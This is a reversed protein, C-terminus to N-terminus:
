CHAGPRASRTAINHARTAELDWRAAIKPYREEVFHQKTQHATTLVVWTDWLTDDLDFTVLRPRKGGWAEVARRMPEGGLGSGPM